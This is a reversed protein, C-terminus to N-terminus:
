ARGPQHRTVRALDLSLLDAQVFCPPALLVRFASSLSEAFRFGGIPPKQKKHRNFRANDAPGSVRAYLEQPQEDLM